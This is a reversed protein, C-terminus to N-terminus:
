ASWREVTTRSLSTVMFIATVWPVPVCVKNIQEELANPPFLFGWSPWLRCNHMSQYLCKSWKPFCLEVPRAILFFPSGYINSDFGLSLSLQSFCFPDSSVPSGLVWAWIHPPTKTWNKALVLSGLWHRKIVPDPLLVLTCLIRLDKNEQNEAYGQPIRGNSPLIQEWPRDLWACWLDSLYWAWNEGEQSAQLWQGSCGCLWTDTKKDMGTIQISAPISSRMLRRKGLVVSTANNSPESWKLM